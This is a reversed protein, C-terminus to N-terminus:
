GGKPTLIHQEVLERLKDVAKTLNDINTTNATTAAQLTEIKNSQTTSTGAVEGYRNELSRADLDLIVGSALMVIGVIMAVWSSTSLRFPVKIVGMRNNDDGM